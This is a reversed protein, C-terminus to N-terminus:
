INTSISWKLNLLTQGSFAFGLQVLQANQNIIVNTMLNIMFQSLDFVQRWHSLTMSNQIHVIKTVLWKNVIAEPKAYMDRSIVVLYNIRFWRFLICTELLFSLISNQWYSIIRTNFLLPRYNIVMITLIFLFTIVFTYMYMRVYM